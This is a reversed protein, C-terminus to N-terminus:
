WNPLPGTRRVLKTDNMAQQIKLFHESPREEALASAKKVPEVNSKQGNSLLFDRLAIYSQKTALDFSIDEPFM